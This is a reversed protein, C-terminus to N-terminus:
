KGVTSSIAGSLQRGPGAAVAPLLAALAVWVARARRGDHEPVGPMVGRRADVRAWRARCGAIATGPLCREGLSLFAFRQARARKRLAARPRDVCISAGLARPPWRAVRRRTGQDHRSAPGRRALARQPARDPVLAARPRPGRRAPARRARGGDRLRAGLSRRAPGLRAAPLREGEVEQYAPGCDGIIEGSAAIVVAYAGIGDEEYQRRTEQIWAATQERTFPAPEWWLVAPDAFVAALMDLDDAAFERVILRETHQPLTM